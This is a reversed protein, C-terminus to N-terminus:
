RFTKAVRFGHTTSLGSPQNASRFASRLDLLNGNFGCGRLPWYQHDSVLMDRPISIGDEHLKMGDDMPSNSFSFNNAWEQANGLMDFLGFDNPKLFGVDHLHDESNGQYWAYKHLLEPSYGYYRSTKSGSRCAYEWESETPLRYGSLYLFDKKIKMGEDYNGFKNPEYCWQDPRIGEKESLWNCYAAADYWTVTTRPCNEHPAYRKDLSQNITELNDKFKRFQAKSVEKSAIGYKHTLLKLQFEEFAESRGAEGSPSGMQFLGVDEILVITGIEKHFLWRANVPSNGTRIIKEVEESYGWMRLTWEAAGHIGPDSTESFIRLLASHGQEQVDPALVESKYEGLALILSRLISDRTNFLLNEGGRHDRVTVPARSSKELRIFEAM